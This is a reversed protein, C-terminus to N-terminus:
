MDAVCYYERMSLPYREMGQSDIASPMRDAAADM